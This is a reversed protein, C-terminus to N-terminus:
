TTCFCLTAHTKVCASTKPATSRSPPLPASRRSTCLPVPLHLPLPPALVTLCSSSYGSVQRQGVSWNEGGEEVISGLKGATSEVADRMQVMALVRWLEEDKFRGFPDLNIRISGQLLVPEQLVCATTNTSPLCLAAPPPPPPPPPSFCVQPILAMGSRLCHLGVKATDTGDLHLAGPGPELEALRFLAQIM